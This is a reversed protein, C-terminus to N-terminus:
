KIDKDFGRKTKASNIEVLCQTLSDAFEGHMKLLETISSQELTVVDCKFQDNYEDLGTIHAQIEGHIRGLQSNKIGYVKEIHSEFSKIKSTM